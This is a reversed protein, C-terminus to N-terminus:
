GTESIILRRRLKAHGSDDFDDGAAFRQGKVVHEQPGTMRLHQGALVSIAVRSVREILRFRGIREEAM